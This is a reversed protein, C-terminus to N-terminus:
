LKLDMMTYRPKPTKVKQKSFFGYGTVNTTFHDALGRRQLEDGKESRDSFSIWINKGLKKFYNEIIIFGSLVTPLVGEHIPKFGALSPVENIDLDLLNSSKGDSEFAMAKFGGAVPCLAAKVRIGRHGPATFIAYDKVFEADLTLDKM